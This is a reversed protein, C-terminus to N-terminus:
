QLRIEDCKSCGFLYYVRTFLFFSYPRELGIYPLLPTPTLIEVLRKSADLLCVIVNCNLHSFLVPNFYMAIPSKGICFVHKRRSLQKIRLLKSNFLLRKNQNWFFYSKRFSAVSSFLDCCFTSSQAKRVLWANATWQVLNTQFHLKREFDGRAMGSPLLGILLIEDLFCLFGSFTLDKLSQLFFLRYTM